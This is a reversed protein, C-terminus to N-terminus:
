SRAQRGSSVSPSTDSPTRKCHRAKAHAAAIQMPLLCQLDAFCSRTDPGPGQGTGAHPGVLCPGARGLTSHVSLQPPLCAPVSAPCPPSVSVATTPSAPAATPAAPPASVPAAADDVSPMDARVDTVVQSKRPREAHATIAIEKAAAPKKAALQPQAQQPVSAVKPEQAPEEAAPAGAEEPAAAQEAFTM